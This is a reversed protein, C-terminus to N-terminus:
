ETKAKSRMTAKTTAEGQLAKLTEEDVPETLDHWHPFNVMEDRVEPPVDAIGNVVKYTQGQHVLCVANEMDTKILMQM